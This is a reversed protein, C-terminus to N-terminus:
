DIDRVCSHSYTACLGVLFKLLPAMLANSNVSTYCLTVVRRGDCTDDVPEM